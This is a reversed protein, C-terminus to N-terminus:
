VRSLLTVVILYPARLNLPWREVPRVADESSVRTIIYAPYGVIGSSWTEIIPVDNGQPDKAPTIDFTSLVSAVTLWVTSKALARGPCLRRAFGFTAEPFLPEGDKCADVPYTGGQDTPIFHAPDFTDPLPYLKADRLIAWANAIVACGEPLFMGEYVDDKMLRHPPILSPPPHWRFIEKVLASTYPLRNQDQLTPPAGDLISDLEAQAKKQAVPYLVMALFFSTLSSATTDAAGLYATGPVARLLDHVSPDQGYKELLNRAASPRRHGDPETRKAEIMADWPVDLSARSVSPYMKAAYNKFGAGPFWAPMYKLFPVFDFILGKFTAGTNMADMTEEAIRVYPDDHDQIDIGYAIRMIIRGTLHRVGARFDDPDSVLTRMFAHVSERQHTEYAALAQPKFEEHFLKRHQRWEENYPLFLTVWELGLYKMSTIVPRDSYIASRKEYLDNAARATNVVVTHKGFAKFYVLDSSYRLSWDRYTVWEYSSPIDFLNDFLPVGPPGPPLPLGRHTKALRNRQWLLVGSIVLAIVSADSVSIPMM